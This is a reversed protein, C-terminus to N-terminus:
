REERDALVSSRTIAELYGAERVEGVGRYDELWEALSSGDLHRLRTTRAADLDCIVVSQAPEELADLLRDSQTAVLVPCDHSIAELYDLVRGVLQPHLHLDPDDFALLSRGPRQLRFLAVHALYALVGDALSAAPLPEDRGRLKLALAIHGGGPDSQTSVAEVHDGLGLRVYGMTDQWHQEDYGDRLQKYVNALNKAFMELREARRVLVAGRLSTGRGQARDAWAASVEFPLHLEIGELASRLRALEAHAQAQRVQRSEFPSSDFLVQVEHESVRALRERSLVALGNRGPVITLDYDLRPSGNDAGDVTLGLKMQSAGHRLLTALGGHIGDLDDLLETRTVRRLIECAELITSKGAGNEGILVTLGNLRLNLDSICRM